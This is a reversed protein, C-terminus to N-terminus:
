CISSVLPPPGASRERFPSPRASRSVRWVAAPGADPGRDTTEIASALSPAATAKSRFGPNWHETATSGVGRRNRTLAPSPPPQFPTPAQTGTALRLGRAESGALPPETTSPVEPAAARVRRERPFAPLPGILHASRLRPAGPPNTRYRPGSRLATSSRLEELRPDVRVRSLLHGPRDPQPLDLAALPRRPPPRRPQFALRGRAQSLGASQEEFPSFDGSAAHSAVACTLPRVPRQHARPVSRQLLQCAAHPRPAGAFLRYASPDLAGRTPAHFCTPLQVRSPWTLTGTAAWATATRARARAVVTPSAPPLRRPSASGGGKTPFRPLLDQSERAPEPHRARAAPLSV